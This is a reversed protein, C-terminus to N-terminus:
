LVRQNLKAQMTNNQVVVGLITESKRNILLDLYLCSEGAHVYAFLFTLELFDVYFNEFSM